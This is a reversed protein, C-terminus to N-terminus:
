VTTQKQKENYNLQYFRTVSLPGAQKSPSLNMPPSISLQPSTRQIIDTQNHPNRKWRLTCYLVRNIPKFHLNPPNSASAGYLERCCNLVFTNICIHECFPGRCRQNQTNTNTHTHTHTHTHSSKHINVAKSEIFGLFFKFRPKNKNKM